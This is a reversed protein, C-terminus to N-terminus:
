TREGEAGWFHGLRENLSKLRANIAPSLTRYRDEPLLEPESTMREQRQRLGWTWVLLSALFALTGFLNWLPAYHKLWRELVTDNLVEFCSYLFFGVALAQAAPEVVVQYYNTFIFLALIAVAMALELGRHATVAALSWSHGGIIWAYVSVLGAATLFMRWGLGWIGRYPALIRRCIEAVAFARAAVVLSETGWGVRFSASSNSGWLWNSFLLASGQALNVLLYCFFLPFVRYNRLYFVLAILGVSLCISLGWLASELSAIGSM